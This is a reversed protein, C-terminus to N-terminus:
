GMGPTPTNPRSLVKEAFVSLKKAKEKKKQNIRALEEATVPRPAANIDPMAGLAGQSMPGLTQVGKNIAERLANTTPLTKTSRVTDWDQVTLSFAAYGVAIAVWHKAEASRKIGPARRFEISGCGGLVNSFNWSVYRDDCLGLLLTAKMTHKDFEDFIPAWSRAPVQAVAANWAPFAEVNSKAWENEKRDAPMIKTMASDYYIIGKLMRKLEDMNYKRDREPSVHVHMSCGPTLLIDCIKLLIDFVQDIEAQWATNTELVRSVMECRWFGPREDLSIEDSITWSTYGDSRTGAPVGYGVLVAAIVKRLARRNLDKATEDGSSPTINPDFGHSLLNAAVSPKPKLLFEMELGFSLALYSSM